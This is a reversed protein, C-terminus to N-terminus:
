VSSTRMSTSKIALTLILTHTHKRQRHKQHTITHTMASCNIQTDSKRRKLTQTCNRRYHSIDCFIKSTDVPPPHRMFLLCLAKIVRPHQCGTPPSSAKCIASLLIRQKHTHKHKCTHMWTSRFPPKPSSLPSHLCLVM